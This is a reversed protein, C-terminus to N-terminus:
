LSRRARIFRGDASVGAQRHRTQGAPRRGTAVSCPLLLVRNSEPRPLGM